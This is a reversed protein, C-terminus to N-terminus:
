RAPEVSSTPARSFCNSRRPQQPNIMDLSNAPRTAMARSHAACGTAAAGAVGPDMSGTGAAGAVGGAADGAGGAAGGGAAAGAGAGAVGGAVAAGDVAGAAVGGALSVAAVGALGSAFFGDFRRM